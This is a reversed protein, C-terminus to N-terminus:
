STVINKDNAPFGLRNYFILLELRMIWDTALNFLPSNPSTPINEARAIAM